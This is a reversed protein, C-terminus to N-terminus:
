TDASRNRFFSYLFVLADRDPDRLEPDQEIAALVDTKDEVFGALRLIHGRAQRCLEDIIPLAELPPWNEGRIWASVSTQDKGVAAAIDKQRIGAAKYASRLARGMKAVTPRSVHRIIVYRM